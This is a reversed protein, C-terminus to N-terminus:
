PQRHRWCAALANWGNQYGLNYACQILVGAIIVGALMQWSALGDFQVTLNM